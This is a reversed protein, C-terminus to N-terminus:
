QSDSYGHVKKVHERLSRKQYFTKECSNCPFQKENSHILIHNNLFRKQIFRKGCSDCAFPKEGTHILAHDNLHHKQRFSKSCINCIFPREIAEEHILTMHRKMNGRNSLIKPCFLCKYGQVIGSDLNSDNEPKLMIKTPQENEKKLSRVNTVLLM